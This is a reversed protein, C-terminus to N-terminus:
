ASLPTNVKHLHERVKLGETVRSEQVVRSQVGLLQVILREENLFKLLDSLSEFKCPLVVSMSLFTDNFFEEKVFNGRM